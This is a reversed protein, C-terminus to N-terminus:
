REPYNKTEHNEGPKKGLPLTFRFSSGVGVESEVWIKGGHMEVFRKSIALGLGSGQAERTISGDAQQFESFINELESKPIGIGTDSVWFLLHEAELKAGIRVEGQPTFKIANGLLNFLVQIIRQFDFRCLPLEQNIETILKLGKENALSAIRGTVTEICEEPVNESLHLEMRGAEIKSLDLVDNILRLLHEGSKQIEKVAERVEESVEGYVEDLILETFGIVANMPTRLEHSMNALFASKAQNAAESKEKAAILQENVLTLEASRAALQTRASLLKDTMDNFAQALDGLEDRTKIDIRHELNGSGISAAGSKLEGLGRSLYRSVRYAVTIAILTSIVFILLTIRETLGAVEYFKLSAAEVQHKEDAQLQPLLQQILRQSLPDARTALEVVAKTHNIGFNQYFIRWSASLEEYTKGFSEVKAQAESESLEGLGQIQRGIAEIQRNFQLTQEAGVGSAGVEVVVQSLLAVQKQLDNLDQKISAILIQRSIARRLEEVTASRKQNSWFYIM